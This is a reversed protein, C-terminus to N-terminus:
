AGYLEYDIPILFKNQERIVLYLLSILIHKKLSLFTIIDMEIFFLVHM